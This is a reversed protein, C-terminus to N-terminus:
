IYCYNRFLRYMNLEQILNVTCSYCEKLWRGTTNLMKTLSIPINKVPQKLQHLLLSFFGFILLIFLFQPIHYSSIYYFSSVNGTSFHSSPPVESHLNEQQIRRSLNIKAASRSIFCLFNCCIVISVSWLNFRIRHSIYQYHLWM